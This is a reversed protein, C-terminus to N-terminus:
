QQAEVQISISYDLDVRQDYVFQIREDGDDVKLLDAVTDRCFKFSAQLNDGDLLRPGFRTLRVVCPLTPARKGFMAQRWATYVAKQQEKRRRDRKAWHGRWNLESITQLGPVTISISM